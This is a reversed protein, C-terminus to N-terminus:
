SFTDSQPDWFSGVLDISAFIEVMEDPKPRRSEETLRNSYWTQALAWQQELDVLPRQPLDRAECWAEVHAESRFGLM